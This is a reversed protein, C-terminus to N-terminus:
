PTRLRYFRRGPVPALSVCNMGNTVAPLSAVNTWGPPNLDVSEQLAFVTGNTLWSIMLLDDSVAINLVPGANSAPVVFYSLNDVMLVNNSDLGWSLAGNSLDGRIGFEVYTPLDPPNGTLWTVAFSALPISFSQFSGVVTPSVDIQLNRANQYSSGDYELKVWFPKLKSVSADFSVFTRGSDYTATNTARPWAGWLATWNSTCLSSDASLLVVNGHPAGVNFLDATVVPGPSGFYTWAPSFPFNLSEFDLNWIAQGAAPLIGFLCVALCLTVSQRIQM